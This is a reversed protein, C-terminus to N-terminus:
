TKVAVLNFKVTIEDKVQLAGALVRLPVLGMASQRLVVTGSAAIRGESRTLSFPVVFTSEHGAVVVALKALLMGPLEKGAPPAHAGPVPQSLSPVRAIAISRVTIAPFRDADLVALSLMNRRTGAKADGPVDASFDPGEERRADADDIIFDAATMRLSFSASRADDATGVWGGLARNLIVHNHGFQAMPGARYVLVRLSSQAADIHYAAIGPAPVAAGPFDAAGPLEAAGPGDVARRGGADRTPPAGCAGLICAACTAAGIKFVFRRM